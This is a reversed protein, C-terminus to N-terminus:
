VEVQERSVPISVDELDCLQDKELYSLTTMGTRSNSTLVRRRMRIHYNPLPGTKSGEM